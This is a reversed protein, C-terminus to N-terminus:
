IFRLKYQGSASVHRPRHSEQRVTSIPFALLIVYFLFPYPNINIMRDNFVLLPAIGFLIVASRRDSKFIAYYLVSMVSIFVSFGLVGMTTLGYLFYNHPGIEARSEFYSAGVGFVYQQTFLDYAHSWRESRGVFGTGIGRYQDTLMFLGGIKEALASYNAIITAALVSTLSMGTLALSPSRGGWAFLFQMARISILLAIALLASRGQLMIVSSAIAITTPILQKWSMSLAAALVGVAGIEAGLNPHSGGFYFFRGYNEPIAGTFCLATHTISTAAISLSATKLYLFLRDHGIITATLIIQICFGFLRAVGDGVYSNLLTGPLVGFVVASIFVLTRNSITLRRANLIAILLKFALAGIYWNAPSINLAFAIPVSSDIIGLAIIARSSLLSDREPNQAPM